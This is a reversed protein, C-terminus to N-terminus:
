YTFGLGLTPFEPWYKGGICPPNIKDLSWCLTSGAIIAVRDLINETEQADIFAIHMRRAVIDELTCVYDNKCIHTVEEETYPYSPILRTLPKNSSRQLDLAATGYSKCLYQAVESDTDYKEVLTHFIEPTCGACGYPEFKSHKKQMKSGIVTEVVNATDEGMKRFISWKGGSITIMNTKVEIIHNKSIPPAHEKDSKPDIVLPQIGTWCSKVSKNTVITKDNLVCSFRNLISDVQTKKPFPYESLTTREDGTGVLTTGEWPLVLLMKNNSENIVLGVGHKSENLPKCIEKCNSDGMKRISDTYPGTANVISKARCVFVEGTIKDRLTVGKYTNGDSLLSEASIYNCAAAGMTIASKIVALNMRTDDFQGKGSCPLLIPVPHVINPCNQLLLKRENLCEKMLKFEQFNLRIIAGKLHRLGGHIMKTCKSSTGSGFDNREVLAVKIGITM